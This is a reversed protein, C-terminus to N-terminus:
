AVDPDLNNQIMRYAAEQLWGKCTLQTGRPARITRTM